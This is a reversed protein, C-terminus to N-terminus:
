WYRSKAFEKEYPEDWYESPLDKPNYRITYAALEGKTGGYDPIGFETNYSCDIVEMSNGYHEKLEAEFKEIEDLEDKSYGTSDNNLFYCAMWDYNKVIETFIRM